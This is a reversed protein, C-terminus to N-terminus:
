LVLAQLFCDAMRYVNTQLKYYALRLVADPILPCRRCRVAQHAVRESCLPITRGEGHASDQGVGHLDLCRLTCTRRTFTCEAYHVPGLHVRWLRTRCFSSTRCLWDDRSFVANAFTSQKLLLLLKCQTTSM